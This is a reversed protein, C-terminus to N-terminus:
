GARPASRVEPALWWRFAKEGAATFEVARSGPARRAWGLDFIRQLIAAGLSGALHFRRESWDVCARCLPRRRLSLGDVDIEWDAFFRMGAPTIEFAERGAILERDQLREALWVGSAGALHDYCVRAAALAPDITTLRGGDRASFRMLGELLSAVDPGSLSYYRHRGQRIVKLMRSELLKALHSSATSPTVEGHVALETATLAIGGMLADLMRAHAPEALLAAVASINSAVPSNGEDM